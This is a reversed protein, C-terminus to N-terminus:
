KTEMTTVPEWTDDPPTELFARCRDLYMRSPTDNPYAALVATFAAHAQAWQRERYTKLAAGFSTMLPEWRDHEAATGLLEYVGVPERKGKVRVLDIERSVVAEGAAAVTAASALIKTGYFKNAGELRAGLNVNDGMVTLALHQDSGMNGFVMPGTNLGCGIELRPWGRSEGYRNVEELQAIMELAALCARQAHDPQPLPAGWVAMVADGIYKDLMGDRAFIIETMAGLYRNLLEVLAEPALQESISTFGRIDSFFVTLTQKEGGLSLREPHASVHDAMSPSLYLDMVRRLQRRAREETVYQTLVTATYTLFVSLLPYVVSLPLGMNVYAYQSGAAYALLLGGAFALGAGGRLRRLGIGLVFAIIILVITDVVVLWRPQRLFDGRIFNDVINAHIEVGPFVASFPTARFDAVAIATVGVLVLKDRVREAIADDTLIDVASLHPFTYSPGRYNILFSGDEAVPIENGALALSSVGFTDLRIHPPNAATAQRMTALSLPLAVDDGYVIALPLRRVLGDGPDPSVNFYAMASAANVIEDISSQVNNARVLHRWGLEAGPAQLVAYRSTSRPLESLVVRPSSDGSRLDDFYFGLVSQPSRRLSDSLAADQAALTAQTHGWSQEDISEPRASVPGRDSFPSPESFSIDLGIAKPAAQTVRDLLAAFVSRPWPWRGIAEISADDIAVVVVDGSTKIPGRQLMRYDMARIDSLYLYRANDIRLACFTIGIVLAIRLPTLRRAAAVTRQLLGV